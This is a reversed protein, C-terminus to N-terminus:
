KAGKAAVKLAKGKATVLAKLSNYSELDKPTKRCEAVAKKWVADLSATDSAGEIAAEFDLRVKEDLGEAKAGDDDQGKVAMGTAALLTYRQLYTM